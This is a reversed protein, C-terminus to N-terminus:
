GRDAEEIDLGLAECAAEAITICQAVIAPDSSPQTENLFLIYLAYSDEDRIPAALPCELYSAIEEQVGYETLTYALTCGCTACSVTSDNNLCDFGGDIGSRINEEIPDRLWWDAEFPPPGVNGMQHWRATRACPWCYTEGDDGDCLWHQYPPDIPPVAGLILNLLRSLREYPAEEM